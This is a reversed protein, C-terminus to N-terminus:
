PKAAIAAALNNVATTFTAADFTATSRIALDLAVLQDKAKAATEKGMGLTLAHLAPVLAEAKGFGSADSIQTAMAATRSFQARTKAANWKTGSASKALKDAGVKLPGPEAAAPLFEAGQDTERLLWHLAEIRPKQDPAKEIRSTLERLLAAQSVLWARASQSQDIEWHPPMEVVQRALEFRLTPHGAKLLAPEINGHCGVCSNAQQYTSNLERLGASIRQAHTIDTRTHLLLYKEAPGHCVECAVGHNPQKLNKALREPAATKMPSHCVTCQASKDAEGLKLAEAIRQSRQSTLTGYSRSHRDLKLWTHVQDEGTGGGHCGTTSCSQWGVFKDAGAASM